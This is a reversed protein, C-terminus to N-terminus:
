NRCSSCVFSFCKETCIPRSYWHWVGEQRVEVALTSRTDSVNASTLALPQGCRTVLQRAIPHDPVRIGVLPNGPNLQANLQGTREFVTTVPGPLLDRLLDSTVTRQVWRFFM